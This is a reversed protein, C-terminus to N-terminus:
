IPTRATEGRTNAIFIELAILIPQFKQALTADNNEKKM